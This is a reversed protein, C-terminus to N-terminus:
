PPFAPTKTTNRHLGFVSRWRGPGREIGVSTLWLDGSVRGILSTVLRRGDASVSLGKVPNNVPPSPGLDALVRTRASIADVSVAQLRLDETERIGFIETGTASWTHALWQDGTLPREAAGDPSVLVFGRETEWTIWDNSPSWHPTANPVGDTRLVTPQEGSGVRVKALTWQRDKWGTYAIWQGDPSWTPASQYGDISPPLLPVPAGGSTLSIWIRLPWIPKQANRQYAIRRGDPSFSPAGLMITRDDAFDRQTILPRDLWREGERHRLWIEDHGNRDSVYTMLQGDRSWAPDSESRTTAVLPQPTAGDLSVEVVDYHSEGRTFVVQEGSPSVSPDFESDPSTTLPRARDDTLDALWLNSGSSTLSAMGLVVHRSDPMWAFVAARPVPDQWWQLRRVPEGSPLPLLWFQWGRREAPLGITRPVMSLGLMRGDPSFALAGEIFRLDGLADYRTAAADIAKSPWPGTGGPTALWLASAGVIDGRQEDRLFALTRGDPSMAGRVANEIAVQPTGGAASISWISERQRALSVYYLRKGDASWFPHRGDFAANTVQASTGAGLRRTFIQLIGDVEAAYAITQGDPSWAPLGEYGGETAFPTFPLIPVDEPTPALAMVMLAGVVLGAIWTAGPILWRRTMRSAKGGSAGDRAAEALRDRVTRLDRHLDGTAGYRDHPEKALCREIIWRLFVPGRDDLMTMPPEDNIIADLTGVATDRRFPSRGVLMEFVILGLSFQDSAFGMPGGRAQEPSMYPVTGAHLGSETQTQETEDRRMPQSDPSALGTSRALGFDLIKVRGDRMVM